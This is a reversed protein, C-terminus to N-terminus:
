SVLYFDGMHLCQQEVTEVHSLAAPISPGTVDDMSSLAGSVELCYFGVLQYIDGNGVLALDGPDPCNDNVLIAVLDLQITVSHSIENDFM